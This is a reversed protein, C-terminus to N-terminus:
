QNQTEKTPDVWIEELGNVRVNVIHNLMISRNQFGHAIDDLLHDYYAMMRIDDSLDALTPDAKVFKSAETTKLEGYEAKAEPSIMFWKYKQASEIELREELWRRIQQADTHINKYFHGLGPTEALLTELHGIATIYPRADEVAQKYYEAAESVLTRDKRVANYWLVVKFESSGGAAKAHVKVAGSKKKQKDSIKKRFENIDSM